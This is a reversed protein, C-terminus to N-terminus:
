FKKKFDCVFDKIKEIKHNLSRMFHYKFPVDDELTYVIFVFVFVLILFVSM